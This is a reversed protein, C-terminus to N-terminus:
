QSGNDHTTTQKEDLSHFFARRVAYFDTRNWPVFGDRALISDYNVNEVVSTLVQKWAREFGGAAAAWMAAEEIMRCDRLNKEHRMMHKIAADEVPKSVKGTHGGFSELSAAPLNYNPSDATKKKGKYQLCFHKLERYREKDIGYDEWSLNRLRENTKEM